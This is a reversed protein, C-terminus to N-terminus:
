QRSLPKSPAQSVSVTRPRPLSPVPTNLQSSAHCKAGETKVTREGEGPTPADKSGEAQGAKWLDKRAGSPFPPPIGGAGGPGGCAGQGWAWATRRWGEQPRLCARGERGPATGQCAFLFATKLPEKKKQSQFILVLLLPQALKPPM